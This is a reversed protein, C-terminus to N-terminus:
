IGKLSFINKKQGLIEQARELDAFRGLDLWEDTVKYCCVKKSLSKLRLMLDPMGLCENCRIHDIARENFANAGMSVFSCQEPKEHYAELQDKAGIEIVGFDSKIKREKVALSAMAGARAHWRLFAAFNMDTLIDGNLVLFNRETGKVLKLAGATGLPKKEHVYRINVGWKKGAGCYAEILESLYGTSIVINKLGAKKLQRILIEIIPYGGVPLLPKPLVTTYPRLRAGQGGALILVQAKFM